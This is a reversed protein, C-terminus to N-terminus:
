QGTGQYHVNKARAAEAFASLIDAFRELKVFGYQDLIAAALAETATTAQTKLAATFQLAALEADPLNSGIPWGPRNTSTM